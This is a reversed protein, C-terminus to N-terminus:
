GRNTCRNDRRAPRNGFILIWLAIHGSVSHRGNGARRTTYGRGSLARLAGGSGSCGMKTKPRFHKVFQTELNLSVRIFRSATSLAARSQSAPGKRLKSHHLARWGGVMTKRRVGLSEFQQRSIKNLKTLDIKIIKLLKIVKM